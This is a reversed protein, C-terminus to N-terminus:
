PAGEKDGRKGALHCPGPGPPFFFGAWGEPGQGAPFIGGIHCGSLTFSRLGHPLPCLAKPHVAQRQEGDLVM